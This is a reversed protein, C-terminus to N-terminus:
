STQQPAPTENLSDVWRQVQADDLLRLVRLMAREVAKASERQLVQPPMSASQQYLKDLTRSTENYIQLLDRQQDSRLDLSDIVQPTSLSSLSYILANANANNSQLGLGQIAAPSVDPIRAAAAAGLAGNLLQPLAMGFAICLAVVAGSVLRSGPGLFSRAGSKSRWLDAALSELEPLTSIRKLGLRTTDDAIEVRVISLEYWGSYIKVVVREGVGIEPFGDLDLEMGGASENIVRAIWESRGIRVTAHEHGEQPTLRMSKRLDQTM